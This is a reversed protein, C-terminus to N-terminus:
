EQALGLKVTLNGNTLTAAANAVIIMFLSTASITMIQDLGGLGISSEQDDTVWSAQPLSVQGVKKASDGAAWALASNDTYTGGSPTSKFFYVTMSIGGGDADNVQISRLRIPRGTAYNVSTVEIIGGVCDGDAYNAGSTTVTVEKVVSRGAGIGDNSPDMQSGLFVIQRGSLDAIGNVIDGASVASPMTDPHAAWFGVKVPKGADADDHAVPGEVYVARRSSIRVPAFQNETVAGPSTDDFQGLFGVADIGSGDADFGNALSAGGVDGGQSMSITVVAGTGSDISTALLGAYKTGAVRLYWHGNATIATVPEGSNVPYAPVTTYTEGDTSLKPTLTGTWTGTVQIAMVAFNDCQPYFTDNTASLTKQRREAGM